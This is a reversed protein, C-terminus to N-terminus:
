AAGDLSVGISGNFGLLVLRGEPKQHDAELGATLQKELSAFHARGSGVEEVKYGGVNQHGKTYGM